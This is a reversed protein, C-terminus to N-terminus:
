INFNVVYSPCVGLSPLLECPRQGPSSFIISKCNVSQLCGGRLYSQSVILQKMRQEKELVANRLQDILELDEPRSERNRYRDNAEEM